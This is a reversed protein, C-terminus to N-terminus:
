SALLRLAGAHVERAHTLVRAQWAEDLPAFAEFMARKAPHDLAPTGWHHLRNEDRLRALVALNGLTGFECTLGDYRVGPLRAQLAATLGGRILYGAPDAPDWTRVPEGLAARVRAIEEAPVRGELLLTRGGYSGLASHWDVHVVRERRQLRDVLLELTARPGPQLEAGGYFLGRPFEYQGCVVASRLAGYGHTLLAWGAALWFTDLGGPPTPPNLLGDLKVYAPDAGSWGGEPFFNRNLDVNAENVRRLNAMGYPNLAHLHLVAADGRPLTLAELQAASGGFGEIGHLGSTYVLVAPADPPGDWAWDITLDDGVPLSGHELHATAARFRRRAEDYDPSFRTSTASM